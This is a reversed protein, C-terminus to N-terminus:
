ALYGEALLVGKGGETYSLRAGFDGVLQRLERGAAAIPSSGYLEGGPIPVAHEQAAAGAEAVAAGAADTAAGEAGSGQAAHAVAGAAWAAAGAQAAKHNRSLGAIAVTTLLHLLLPLLAPFPQRYGWVGVSVVAPPVTVIGDLATAVYYDVLWLCYGLMICPSAVTFARRGARFRNSLMFLMRMCSFDTYACSLLAAFM